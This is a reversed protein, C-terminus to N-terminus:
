AAVGQPGARGALADEIAGVLATLDIPKAVFGNMGAALYEEVQHSMVNASLALIPTPALGREAELARIARTADVGNMTPMQIDMLVLDYAGKAFAEVAEAGDAAMRLEVGLPTLMAGLLLRNTQNDEAALIRLPPLTAEEPPPAAEARAEGVRVLPLEFTFASGCGEASTASVSGGMLEVLERTIALGLGTGGFKRTATPDVQSFRQFLQPLRERAIGAGTDSVTCAVGTETRRVGVRIEGAATFKVANSALNALVQKFRGGDGRWVGRAERAIESIFRVEKQAALEAFGQTAAEVTTEMDFDGLEIEMRGAEIKSLDLLDNLLGLLTQGSKRIVELKERDETSLDSRALVQAMGLVGNLPTRIEHSMNALFRSKALNAAEARDRAEELAKRAEEHGHEHLDLRRTLRVIQWALAIAVALTVLGGLAMAPAANKVVQLGQHKPRWVVAGIQQGDIDRLALSAPGPAASRVIRVDAVGARGLIAPLQRDLREASVVLVAQGPQRPTTPSEPTVTSAAVLYCTGGSVILGSATEALSPNDVGLELPPTGRAAELARARRIVSAVEALRPGQRAPDARGAGVWAYFPRDQGDLAITWAHGRNNTFYSGIEQDAWDVDGGPKLRQYAQDWVTATTLDTVVTRLRRDVISEVLTRDQRAALDDLAHIGTVLLTMGGILVLAM